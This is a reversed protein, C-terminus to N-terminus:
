GHDIKTVRLEWLRETMTESSCQPVLQHPISQLNSIVSTSEGGLNVPRHIAGLNRLQGPSRNSGTPCSAPSPVQRPRLLGMGTSQIGVTRAMRVVVSDWCPFPLDQLPVVDGLLFASAQSPMCTKHSVSEFLGISGVRVDSSPWCNSLLTHVSPPWCPLHTYWLLVSTDTSFSVVSRLLCIELFSSSVKHPFWSYHVHRSVLIM